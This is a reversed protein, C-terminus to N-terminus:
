QLTVGALKRLSALQEASCSMKYGEARGDEPTDADKKMAKEAKAILRKLEAELDFGAFPNEPKMTYWPEALCKGWKDEMKAKNFGNFKGEEKSVKLGAQQFWEVLATRRMGKGLGDVLAQARQFENHAYCHLMIAVALTQIRDQLKNSDKIVSTLEKDMAAITMTPKAIVIKATATM